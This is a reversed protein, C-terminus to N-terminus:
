EYPRRATLNGSSAENQRHQYHAMNETSFPQKEPPVMDVSHPGSGGPRQEAAGWPVIHTILPIHLKPSAPSFTKTLNPGPREPHM